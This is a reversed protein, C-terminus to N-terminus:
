IEDPLDASAQWLAGLLLRTATRYSHGGQLLQYTQEPDAELAEAELKQEDSVSGPISNFQHVEVQPEGTDFTARIRANVGDERLTHKNTDPMWITTTSAGERTETAMWIMGGQLLRRASVTTEDGPKEGTEEVAIETGPARWLKDAYKQLDKWYSSVQAKQSTTVETM